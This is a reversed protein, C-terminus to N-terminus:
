KELWKRTVDMFRLLLGRVIIYQINCTVLLRTYSALAIFHFINVMGIKLRKMHDCICIDVDIDIRVIGFIKTFCLTFSSGRHSIPLCFLSYRQFHYNQCSSQQIKM